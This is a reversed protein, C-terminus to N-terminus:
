HPLAGTDITPAAANAATALKVPNVLRFVKALDSGSITFGAARAHGGGGVGGAPTLTITSLDIGDRAARCSVRIHDYKPHYSWIAVFDVPWYSEYRAACKSLLRGGVESNLTGSNVALVRYERGASTMMMTGARSVLGDVIRAQAKLYYKGGQALTEAVSDDMMWRKHLAELLAFSAMYNDVFLTENVELSHSLRWNWLDRDEVYSILPPVREEPHFQDWAIHAGSRGADFTYKVKTPHAAAVLRILQEGSRHHDGIWVSAAKDAIMSLCGELHIDLLIVHRAAVLEAPVADTPQVFVFATPMEDALIQLAGGVSTPSRVSEAEEGDSNDASQGEGNLEAYKGGYRALLRREEATLRNSSWYAWAAAMGDHCPGHAIVVTQVNPEAAAPYSTARSVSLWGPSSSAFTASSSRTLGASGNRPSAGLPSPSNGLPPSVTSPTSM